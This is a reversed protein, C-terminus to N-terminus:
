ACGAKGDEFTVSVGADASVSRECSALGSPLPVSLRWRGPALPASLAKGECLAIRSEGAAQRLALDTFNAQRIEASPLSSVADLRLPEIKIAVPACHGNKPAARVFLSVHRLEASARMAGPAPGADRSGCGALVMFLAALVAQAADIGRLYHM